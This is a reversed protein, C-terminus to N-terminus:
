LLSSLSFFFLPTARFCSFDAQYRDEPQQLIFFASINRFVFLLLIPLPNSIMGSSGGKKWIWGNEQYDTPLLTLHRDVHRNVSQHQEEDCFIM